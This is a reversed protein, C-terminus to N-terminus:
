VGNVSTPSSLMRRLVPVLREMPLSDQPAVGIFKLEQRLRQLADELDDPKLYQRVWHELDGVPVDVLEPLLVLGIRHNGTDLSQLTERVTPKQEGRRLWRRLMSSRTNSLVIAVCIIVIQSRNIDPFDSWFKVIDRLLPLEKAQWDSSNILSCFALPRRLNAINKSLSQSDSTAGLGLAVNVDVQYARARQSLSEESQNPVTSPWQIHQWELQDSLRLRKLHQPLTHKELRVLFGDLCQAREGHVVLVIPRQSQSRQKIHHELEVFIQREQSARDALNQVFLQPPQQITRSGSSGIDPADHSSADYAPSDGLFRTLAM